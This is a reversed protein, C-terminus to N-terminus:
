TITTDNTLAVFTVSLLLILSILLLIVSLRAGLPQNRESVFWGTSQLFNRYLVFLIILNAISPLMPDVRVNLWEWISEETFSLVSFGIFIVIVIRVIELSFRTLERM